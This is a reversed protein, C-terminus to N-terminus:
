SKRWDIAPLVRSAPAPSMADDLFFGPEPDQSVLAMVEGFTTIHPGDHFYIPPYSGVDRVLQWGILTAVMLDDHNQATAGYGGRGDAVFTQSEILFREDHVEIHGERLGQIFDAVMKPKTRSSTTWGYDLRRVEDRIQRGLKPMRYMRPYRDHKTLHVIPVMGHNNREIGILANHYWYGLRALLDGLEDIPVHSRMSAVCEHTNANWVTIATFDGHDLGEAPDCAIVYNPLRIVRDEEDTEVTPLEWVYLCLDPDDVEEWEHFSTDAIEYSFRHLPNSWDQGALLDGGIAPRGSKAFAEEPDTPYEQYFLWTQGRYQLKTNRYWAEDRQPVASWPYFLAHWASDSQQSDLWLNHFWNGMGHATSIVVFPGYCLPEMAGFTTGADAMFAAEDFIVGYVADGRGSAATSPLSEIRSGNSFGLSELTESELDPGRDKMWKPLGNYFVKAIRLTKKAPGEGTSVNLWPRDAFFFVDHFAYSIAATTYGIQRAKLVIIREQEDIADLFALQADRYDLAVKGAGPLSVKLYRRAFYERDDQCLKWEIEQLLEDNTLNRLADNL